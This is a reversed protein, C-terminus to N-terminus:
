DLSRTAVLEWNPDRSSTDRAFTWIDTIETIHNPDGDIVEGDADRTINVQESVIKITVHAIKGEMYAEIATLSRIGVLTNELTEKAEERASIARTFNEFVTESLLSQLTDRDGKAFAEVIMEFAGSAGATFENLDFGPSAAQIQAVGAQLPSDPEVPQPGVTEAPEFTDTDRGDSQDPLQVVNDDRTKPPEVSFPDQPRPEGQDHRRGLVSRLRLIIFAAVMAFLIIDIFQFGEGM